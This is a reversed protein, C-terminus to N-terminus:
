RGWRRRHHRRSGPAQDDQDAGLVDLLVSSDVATKVAPGVGATSGGQTGAQRSDSELAALQDEYVLKSDYLFRGILTSKGDDVSGCTIFRLVGRTNGASIPSQGRNRELEGLLTM